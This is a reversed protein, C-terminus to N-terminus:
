GDGFFASGKKKGKKQPLGKRPTAAFDHLQSHSMQLLGKNRDYLKGPEHEAIAMATQQAKSVAPM